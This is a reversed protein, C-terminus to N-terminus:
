YSYHPTLRSVLYNSDRCCSVGVLASRVQARVAETKNKLLTSVEKNNKFTNFHRAFKEDFNEVQIPRGDEPDLHTFNRYAPHNPMIEKYRRSGLEQLEPNSSEMLRDAAQQLSLSLLGNEVAFDFNERKRFLEFFLRTTTHCGDLNTVRNPDYVFPSAETM